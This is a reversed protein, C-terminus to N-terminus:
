DRGLFQNIEENNKLEDWVGSSIKRLEAFANAINGSKYSLIEYLTFSKFFNSQPNWRTKGRLAVLKYLSLALKEANDKSIEFSLKNGNTLELWAKANDGGIKILEGYLTTEIPLFVNEPKILPTNYSITCVEKEKHIIEAKCQKKEALKYIYRYGAYAKDPLNVYSQKQIKNGFFYLADLTEKPSDNISVFLSESKNEIGIPSLRVEELDTNPYENELISIISDELKSFLEGIEKLTFSEPTINNDFFRLKFINDQSNDM